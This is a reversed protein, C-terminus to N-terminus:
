AVRSLVGRFLSPQGSDEFNYVARSFFPSDANQSAGSNHVCLEGSTNRRDHNMWILCTGLIGDIKFLAAHSQVIHIEMTFVLTVDSTCGLTPV